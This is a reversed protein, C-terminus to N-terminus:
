SRAPQLLVISMLDDDDSWASKVSWGLAKMHAPFFKPSFKYCHETVIAQGPRFDFSRGAASVSVHRQAM